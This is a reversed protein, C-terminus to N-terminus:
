YVGNLWSKLTEEDIIIIGLEQAKNLKSGAKEGVVLIDTKKTVSDVSIGGLNVLQNTIWSRKGIEFTGTICFTKGNIPHNSEIVVPVEKIIICKDM